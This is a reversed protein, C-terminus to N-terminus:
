QTTLSTAWIAFPHHELTRRVYNQWPTVMSGPKQANQLIKMLRQHAHTTCRLSPMHHVHRHASETASNTVRLILGETRWPLNAQSSFPMLRGVLDDPTNVFNRIYYILNSVLDRQNKLCKIKFKASLNRCLTIYFM